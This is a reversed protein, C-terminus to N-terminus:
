QKNLREKILSIVMERAVSNHAGEPIIVDALKKYPEVYAEHMPKVTNLYQDIVSEVSRGRKIVDRHVRRLIRVDADTDVFVKIDMLEVLQPFAFLLIGDLIIVPTAKVTEWPQSSRNHITFDYVPIKTDRGAKLEKVCEIMIDADFADPHDYNTRTREEYTTNPQYKYFSDMSVISARDGFEEKIKRALTSKGSGSGGCIGIVINGAM